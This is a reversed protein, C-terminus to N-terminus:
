LKRIQYQQVTSPSVNRDSALKESLKSNAHRYESHDLVIKMLGASKAGVGLFYANCLFISKEYKDVLYLFLHM